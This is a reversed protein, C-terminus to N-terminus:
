VEATVAEPVQEPESDAASGAAPAADAEVYATYLASGKQRSKEALKKEVLTELNNRVTKPNANRSPHDQALREAIERTVHPQGPTKRLLDLILQQLPTGTPAEPKAPQEAAPKKAATRKAVKATAAKKAPREAKAPEDRRPSPVAQPAEAAAEASTSTGLQEARDTSPAEAVVDAPEAGGPTPYGPLSDQAQALWSEEVRLQALREQLVTIQETLGAQEERNVELEDAYQQQFKAYKNQIVTKKEPEDAM